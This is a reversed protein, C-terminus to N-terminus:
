WGWVRRWTRVSLLRSLVAFLRSIGCECKRRLFSELVRQLDAQRTELFGVVEGSSLLNESESSISHSHLVRAWLEEDMTIPRQAFVGAVASLPEKLEPLLVRSAAWLRYPEPVTQRAFFSPVVDAATPRDILAGALQSQEFCDATDPSRPGLDWWSCLTIKAAAENTRFRRLDPVKVHHNDLASLLDGISGTLDGPRVRTCLMRMAGTASGKFIEPGLVAARWFWRGLLRLNAPDPDPHHAFVRTLVVLLYRYPLLAFHPVGISQLFRVSRFLAQEGAEEM